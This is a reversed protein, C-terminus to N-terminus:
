VKIVDKVHATCPVNGSYTEHPFQRGTTSIFATRSPLSQTNAGKDTYCGGASTVCHKASAKASPYHTFTPLNVPMVKILM